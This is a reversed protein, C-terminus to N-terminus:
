QTLELIDKELRGLSQCTPDLPQQPTGWHATAPQNTNLTITSTQASITGSQIPAGYRNETTYTGQVKVSLVYRINVSVRTNEGEPAVYINARGELSPYRSLVATQPLQNNVGALKYTSASALNYKYTHTEAGRAYTRTTIGCDVYTEPTDTSFSVNIIRSQKDINNIVYFSKALERVFSDWITEFPKSVILENQIKTPNQPPTYDLTSTGPTACGTIMTAYLALITTKNLFKM